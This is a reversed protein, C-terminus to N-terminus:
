RRRGVAQGPSDRQLNGEGNVNDGVSAPRTANLIFHAHLKVDFESSVRNAAGPDAAVIAGKKADEFTM